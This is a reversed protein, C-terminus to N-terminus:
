SKFTIKQKKDSINLKLYKIIENCGVKSTIKEIPPSLFDLSLDIIDIEIKSVEGYFPSYKSFGILYLKKDYVLCTPNKKYYNLKTSLNTKFTNITSEENKLKKFRKINWKTRFNFPANNNHCPISFGHLENDNPYAIIITGTSRSKYMSYGKM